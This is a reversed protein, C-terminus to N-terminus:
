EPVLPPAWEPWWYSIGWTTKKDGETTECELKIEGRRVREVHELRLLALGIGHVSTLLKGTGRPRVSVASDEPTRIVSARVDLDPPFSPADASTM